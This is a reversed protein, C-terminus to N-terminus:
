AILQAAQISKLSVTIKLEFLCGWSTWKSSPWCVQSLEELKIKDIFMTLELLFVLQEIM